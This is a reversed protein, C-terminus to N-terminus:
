IGVLGLFTNCIKLKENFLKRTLYKIILFKYIMNSKIDKKRFLLYCQRIM